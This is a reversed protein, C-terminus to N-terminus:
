LVLLYLLNHIGHFRSIIAGFVSISSRFFIYCIILQWLRLKGLLFCGWIQSIVAVVAVLSLTLATEFPITDGVLSGPAIYM